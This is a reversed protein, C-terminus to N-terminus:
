LRLMGGSYHTKASMNSLWLPSFFSFLILWWLSRGKQQIIWGSVILIFVIGVIYIIGFFLDSGGVAVVLFRVAIILVYVLVYTWNLHKEFWNM